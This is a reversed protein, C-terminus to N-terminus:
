KMQKWKFMLETLKQKTHQPFDNKIMWGYYAPDKEFIDFVKKSKHKGFNFVADGEANLVVRGALDVMNELQKGTFEYLSEMDDGIDDYRLVQAQLVEETAAIDAEASHQNIIEKNCYFKFAAALDRREKRHFIHQVDVVKRGDLSFDVNARLLEEVFMPLDFKVVNYGSLDANGIFNVLSKAVKAFVPEDKLDENSIGHIELSEKSIPIEPNIRQTLIERKGDPMLKLISIEIIRDTSVNLGTTELDFLALPKTLKISM